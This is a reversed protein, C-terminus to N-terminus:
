FIIFMMIWITIVNMCYIYDTDKDYFFSATRYVGLPISDVVIKTLGGDITKIIKNYESHLSKIM